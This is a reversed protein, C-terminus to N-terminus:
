IADANELYNDHIAQILASTLGDLMKNKEIRERFHEANISLNYLREMTHIIPNHGLHFVQNSRDVLLRLGELVEKAIRIDYCKQDM